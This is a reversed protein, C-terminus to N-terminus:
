RVWEDLAVGERVVFLMISIFLYYYHVAMVSVSGPVWIVIIIIINNALAYILFPRRMRIFM